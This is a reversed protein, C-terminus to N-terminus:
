TRGAFNGVFQMLLGAAIMLFVWGQKAYQGIFEARPRSVDEGISEYTAETPTRQWQQRTQWAFLVGLGAGVIEIVIGTQGILWLEM